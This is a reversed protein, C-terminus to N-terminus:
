HKNYKYDLFTGWYEMRNYYPDSSVFYTIIPINDLYPNSKFLPADGYRIAELALPLERRFVEDRKPTFAPNTPSDVYVYTSYLLGYKSNTWEGLVEDRQETIKDYAYDYGITLFLEATRDSHTLTYKRPFLPSTATVGDRYEVFLKEPNLRNM